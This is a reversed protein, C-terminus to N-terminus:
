VSSLAEVIQNTTVIASAYSPINVDLAAHMENDSYDATADRVLKARLDNFSGGVHAVSILTWDRYGEPPKVGYIPSAEGDTQGYAPATFAVAGAVTALGAVLFGIRKM